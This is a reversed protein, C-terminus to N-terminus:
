LPSQMRLAKLIGAHALPWSDPAWISSVTAVAAYTTGFSQLRLLFGPSWKIFSTSDKVVTGTWPDYIGVRWHRQWFLNTPHAEGYTHFGLSSSAGGPLSPFSERLIGRAWRSELLVLALFCIRRHKRSAIQLPISVPRSEKRKQHRVLPSIFWATDRAM